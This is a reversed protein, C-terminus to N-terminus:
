KLEKLKTKAKELDELNDVEMCLKNGIDVGYIHCKDSIENFANEGYVKNNGELCFKVMENLWMIWEEKNVKYLPQATYANDFYDIGVKTIRDGDMVAKFDKLPLPLSKSIIMCSDKYNLAEKLVEESFILDGHMMVIDDELEDKACYVSYIYNTDKYIPNNVFTFDIDLSLDHCYKILIDEFPGTTMVVKKIGVKELLKLQRSLITEEDSIETMCKPHTKTIEGMRTGMGSNLILARM